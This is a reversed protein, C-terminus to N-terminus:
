ARTEKPLHATLWDQVWQATLACVPSTAPTHGPRIALFWREAPCDADPTVGLARYGCGRANALTGV